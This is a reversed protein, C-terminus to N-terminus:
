RREEAYWRLIGANQIWTNIVDVILGILLITMIQEIVESQTIILAVIIAALTTVNMLMGTKIAGKVRDYVTGEERKLVRTSLLIDTDVSYGILMLFAAIGATSLKIEMVSVVALTVVMDSFAALVVAASPIFTRFVFFVVIAMLIFAIFLATVTQQLFSQGLSPGIIEITYTDRVDPVFQELTDIISQELTELDQDQTAPAAQISVAVQRGFETIERVLIDNEPYTARLTATVDAVSLAEETPITITLGGSLSVGTQVFQGTSSYSVALVVFAALLMLFPIFLLKKYNDHYFKDLGSRTTTEKPMTPPQAKKKSARRAKRKSM